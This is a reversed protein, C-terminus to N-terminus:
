TGPKGSVPQLRALSREAELRTRADSDYQLLTLQPIAQRAAPGLTGLLHTAGRRALIANEDLNREGIRLAAILAPISEPPKQHTHGILMVATLRAESEPDDLLKILISGLKDPGPRVATPLNILTRIALTRVACNADNM